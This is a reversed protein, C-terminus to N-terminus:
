ADVSGTSTGILTCGCAGKHGHLAVPRGNLTYTSCGETIAVVGHPQGNPFPMPCMILDGQRAIPKGNYTHLPDGTIVTGGHSTKDGVVIISKSM